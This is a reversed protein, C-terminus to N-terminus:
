EILEAFVSDSLLYGRDTLRTVGNEVVVLGLTALRAFTSGFIPQPSVGFVSKFDEDALGDVLRLSTFAMEGMATRGVIM